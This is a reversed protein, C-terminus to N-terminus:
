KNRLCKQEMANILEDRWHFWCIEFYTVAAEQWKREQENTM